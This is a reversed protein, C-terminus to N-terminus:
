KPLTNKIKPVIQSFEQQTIKFAMALAIIMSAKQIPSKLEKAAEPNEILEIIKTRITPTVYKLAINLNKIVLPDEIKNGNADLPIVDAENLSNQIEEKILSKLERLKM